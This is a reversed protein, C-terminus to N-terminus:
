WQLVVQNQSPLIKEEPDERRASCEEIEPGDLVSDNPPGEKRQWELTAEDRYQQCREVTNKEEVVGEFTEDAITLDPSRDLM